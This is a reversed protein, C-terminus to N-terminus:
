KRSLASIRTLAEHTEARTTKVWHRKANTPKLHTERTERQEARVPAPRIESMHDQDQILYRGGFNQDNRETTM